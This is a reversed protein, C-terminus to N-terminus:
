SQVRRRIEKKDKMDKDKCEEEDLTVKVSQQKGDRKITLTVVNGKKYKSLYYKLEEMTAFEYNDMKLIVDGVRLGADEAPSDKTFSTILIAYDDWMSEGYLGIRARSEKKDTGFGGKDYKLFEPYKSIPVKVSRKENDRIYFVEVQTGPEYEDLTEVLEDFDDIRTSNIATIIDGRKLGASEAGYGKYIGNVVLGRSYGKMTDIDVGLFSRHADKLFFMAAACVVALSFLNRNKM